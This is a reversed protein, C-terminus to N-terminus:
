LNLYSFKATQLRVCLFLKERFEYFILIRVCNIQELKSQVVTTYSPSYKSFLGSVDFIVPGVFVNIDFNIYFM